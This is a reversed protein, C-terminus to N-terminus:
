TMGKGRRVRKSRWDVENHTVVRARPKSVTDTVPTLPLSKGPSQRAMSVM